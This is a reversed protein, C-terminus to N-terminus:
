RRMQELNRKKNGTLEFDAPTLHPRLATHITSGGTKPVHVFVIQPDKLIIM